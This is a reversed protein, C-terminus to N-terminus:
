GDTEELLADLQELSMKRELAFIVAADRRIRPYLVEKRGIKLLRNTQDLDLGLLFALRILINRTPRRTGNFIQYGYSRDLGLAQITSRVEMGRETLLECLYIATPPCHYDAGDLFSLGGSRNEKIQHILEETSKVEAMCEM